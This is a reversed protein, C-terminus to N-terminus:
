SIGPSVSIGPPLPSPPLTEGQYQIHRMDINAVQEKGEGLYAPYKGSQMVSIVSCAPRFHRDPGFFLTGAIRRVKRVRIASLSQEIQRM